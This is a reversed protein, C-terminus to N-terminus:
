RSGFRKRFTNSHDLNAAKPLTAIEGESMADPAGKLESISLLGDRRLVGRRHVICAWTDLVEGLVAVLFAGTL